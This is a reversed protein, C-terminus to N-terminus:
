INMCHPLILFSLFLWREIFPVLLNLNFWLLPSLSRRCSQSLHLLGSFHCFSFFALHKVIAFDVKTM